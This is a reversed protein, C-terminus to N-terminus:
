MVMGGDVVIVQGTIYSAEDSALFAVAAAVESPSGMRGMPVKGLIEEKVKDGLQETMATEIFGPAVANVRVGKKAAEKAISKTFGIMGAKSAAYNCQGANGTIGIVSAINVITGGKKLMQRIAAKCTNFVSKLNVSMVMDWSDEGMKMLLNDRTIGANNVLVDIRGTDKLIGDFFAAVDESSSVDVASSKAVAGLEAVMKETEAAAAAEGEPNGPNFYNFYITTSPAALECCITRGIGRSGGTVVITRNTEATM